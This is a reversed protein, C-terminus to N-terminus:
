PKVEELVVTTTVKASVSVPVWSRAPVAVFTGAQDAEPLKAVVARIALVGSAVIQTAGVTEWDTNPTRRLVIYGKAATKRKPKAPTPTPETM